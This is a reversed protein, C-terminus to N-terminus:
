ISMIFHIVDKIGGVTIGKKYHYSEDFPDVIWSDHPSINMDKLNLQKKLSVAM